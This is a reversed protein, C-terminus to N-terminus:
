YNSILKNVEQRRTNSTAVYRNLSRVVENLDYSDSRNNNNRVRSLLENDRLYDYVEKVDTALGWQGIDVLYNVFQRATVVRNNNTSDGVVAKIMSNTTSNKVRTVKDVFRQIKTKMQIKREEKTTNVIENM